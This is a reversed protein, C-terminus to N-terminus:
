PELWYARGDAPDWGLPKFGAAGTRSGAVTDLIVPGDPGLGVLYRGDPSFTHAWWLGVDVPRVSGAAPDLVRWGQRARVWLDETGPQWILDMPELDHHTMRGTSGDLIVLQVQVQGPYGAEDREPGARYSAFALWRGGPSWAAPLPRWVPEQSVLDSVDNFRQIVQGAASVIVLDVVTNGGLDAATQGLSTVAPAHFVAIPAGPALAAGVVAGAQPKWLDAVQAGQLLGSLPLVRPLRHRAAGDQSVLVATDDDLWAAWALCGQVRDALPIGAGAAPEWLTLSRDPCDGPGADPHWALLRGSRLAHPGAPDLLPLNPLQGAPEVRGAPDGGDGAAAVVAAPAAVSWALGSESAALPMGLRDRASGRGPGPALSLRVELSRTVNQFLPLQLHTGDDSWTPVGTRIEPPLQQRLADVVADQDVPRTFDAELVATGARLLPLRRAAEDETFRHEGAGPLWTSGSLALRGTTPETFLIEFSAPRGLRRGDASSLGADVTITVPAGGGPPLLFLRLGSAARDLDNGGVPTLSVLAEQPEVRVQQGADAALAAAFWITVEQPGSGLRPLHIGEGPGYTGTDGRLALVPLPLSDVADEPAPPTEAPEAPAPMDPPAPSRCSTVLALVVLLLLLRAAGGAQKVSRLNTARRSPRPPRLAVGEGTRWLMGSCKGEMM